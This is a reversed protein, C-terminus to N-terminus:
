PCHGTAMARVAPRRSATLGPHNHFHEALLVLDNHANRLRRVHLRGNATAPVDVGHDTTEEIARVEQSSASVERSTRCRGDLSSPPENVNVLVHLHMERQLLLASDELLLHGRVCTNAYAMRTTGSKSGNKQLIRSFEGESIFYKPCARRDRQAM